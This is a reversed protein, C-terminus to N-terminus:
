VKLIDALKRCAEQFEFPELYLGKIQAKYSEYTRYDGKYRGPLNKAQEYFYNLTAVKKSDM